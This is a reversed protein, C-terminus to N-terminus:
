LIVMKSSPSPAATPPVLAMFGDMRRAKETRERRGRRGRTRNDELDVGWEGGREGEGWQRLTKTASRGLDKM